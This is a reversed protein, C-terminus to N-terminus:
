GQHLTSQFQHGLLRFRLAQFQQSKLVMSDEGIEPAVGLSQALDEGVNEVVRNLEGFLPVDNQSDRLLGLRGSLHHESEFHLVVSNSDTWLRLKMEEIGEPLGVPRGSAFIASGTQSQGNGALQNPHHLSVNTDLALQAFTGGKPERGMELLLGVVQGCVLVLLRQDPKSDEDDIIM